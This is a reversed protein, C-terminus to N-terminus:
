TVAARAAEKTAATTVAAAAAAAVTRMAAALPGALSATATDADLRVTYSPVGDDAQIVQFQVQFASARADIDKGRGVLSSSALM